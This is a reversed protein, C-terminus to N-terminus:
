SHTQTPIFRIQLPLYVVNVDRKNAQKLRKSSPKDFHTNKMLYDRFEDDNELHLCVIEGNDRVIIYGGYGQLAGSWLTAPQLGLAVARLFSKLQYRLISEAKQGGHTGAWMTVEEDLSFKPGRGRYFYEKVLEALKGPFDEGFFELNTQLNGNAFRKFKLEEIDNADRIAAYYKDEAAPLFPKEPIFEIATAGSANLLSSAKGLESKISFGLRSPAGGNQNQLHIFIDVKENSAAKLREFGLTRLVEEVAPLAFTTEKRNQIADLVTVQSAVIQNGSVSENLGNTYLDQGPVLAINLGPIEVKSVLYNRGSMAELTSGAAPIEGSTLLSLFVYAESWEGKNGTWAEAM